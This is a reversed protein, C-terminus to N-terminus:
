VCPITSVCRKAIEQHPSEATCTSRMAAVHMDEIIAVSRIDTMARMGMATAGAMPTFAYKVHTKPPLLGINM